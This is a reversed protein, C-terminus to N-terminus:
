LLKNGYAPPPAVVAPQPECASLEASAKMIDETAWGLGALVKVLDTDGKTVDRVLEAADFVDGVYPALAHVRCQYLDVIAQQRPNLAHCGVLLAIGMGALISRAEAAAKEPCM